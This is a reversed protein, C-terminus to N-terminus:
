VQQPEGTTPQTSIPQVAGVELDLPNVVAAAVPAMHPSNTKSNSVPRLNPSNTRSNTKSPLDQPPVNPGERNASKPTCPMAVEGGAYAVEGHMVTDLDMMEDATPTVRVIAKIALLVLVSIIYSYVAALLVTLTQKGVLEWSASFGAVSADAFVGVFISGLLGGMGHVGWVDLADDWGLKNKLECCLYCFVAALIGVVFAAWPQIFGACPTITALGAIAGVCVGILSPKGNRIWEIMSWVVLATSAAIESNVAAYASGSGAALASGGNFGFWGFWLLATGLAVFPINHPTTDVVAADGAVETRSGLVHVGALASFGATTHVVIGGAFDKVDWKGLWGDPGWIAHCFPCYVLVFWVAIFTLYPGFRIRDAFAGTMLAPTIVAFMGQYGAFVLGPVDDVFNTNGHKLPEGGVDKFGGFTTIDGFIKFDNSEGFCLSFGFAFWMITVIGMCAFNQMIMTIVSKSSLLGAYFFALGPLMLQVLAMCLLLFATHGSDTAMNTSSLTGM